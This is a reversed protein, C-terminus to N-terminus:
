SLAKYALAPECFVLEKMMTRVISYLATISALLQLKQLFFVYKKILGM